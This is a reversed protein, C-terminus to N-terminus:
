QQTRLYMEKKSGSSLFEDKNKPEIIFTFPIYGRAGVTITIKEKKWSELDKLLHEYRIFNDDDTVGLYKVVDNQVILRNGFEFYTNSDTNPNGRHYHKKPYRFSINLGELQKSGLNIIEFAFNEAQPKGSQITQPKNRNWIKLQLNLQETKPDSIALSIIAIVLAIVAVLLNATDDSFFDFILEVLFILLIIGVTIKYELKFKKM